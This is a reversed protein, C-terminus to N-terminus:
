DGTGDFFFIFREPGMVKGVFSLIEKKQPMDVTEM